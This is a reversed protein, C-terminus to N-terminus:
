ITRRSHFIMERQAKDYPSDQAHLLRMLVLLEGEDADLQTEDELHNLYAENPEGQVEMMMADVEEVEQM